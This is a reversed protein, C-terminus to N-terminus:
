GVCVFLSMHVVEEYEEEKDEERMGSPGESLAVGAIHMCAGNCESEQANEVGM